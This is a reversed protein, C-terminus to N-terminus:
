LTLLQSLFSLQEFELIEKKVKKVRNHSLTKDILKKKGKIKYHHIITSKLRLVHGCTYFGYNKKKKYNSIKNQSPSLITKALALTFKHVHFIFPLYFFPLRANLKWILIKKQTKWDNLM